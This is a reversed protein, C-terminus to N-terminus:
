QNNLIEAIHLVQQNKKQRNLGGAIHM